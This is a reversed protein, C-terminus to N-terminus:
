SCQLNEKTAIIEETPPSLELVNLPLYGEFGSEDIVFVMDVTRIRGDEMNIIDGGALFLYVKYVKGIPVSESIVGWTVDDPFTHHLLKAYLLPRDPLKM